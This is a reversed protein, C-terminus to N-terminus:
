GRAHAARRAQRLAAVRARHNRSRLGARGAAAKVTLAARMLRRARVPQGNRQARMARRALVAARRHRTRSLVLFQNARKRHFAIREATTGQAVARGQAKARRPPMARGQAMARRPPM